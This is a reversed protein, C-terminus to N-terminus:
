KVQTLTNPLPNKEPGRGSPMPIQTYNECRVRSPLEGEVDIKLPGGKTANRRILKEVSCFAALPTGNRRDRGDDGSAPFGTM